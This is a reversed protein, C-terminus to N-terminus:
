NEGSVPHPEAMAVAWYMLAAYVVARLSTGWEALLEEAEGESRHAGFKRILAQHLVIGAAFEGSPHRGGFRAKAEELSRQAEGYSVNETNTTANWHTAVLQWTRARWDRRGALFPKYADQLRDKRVNRKDGDNGREAALQAILPELLLALSRLHLFRRSYSLDRPRNSTEIIGAFEVLWSTLGVSELYSVFRKGSGAELGLEPCHAHLDTALYRLHLQSTMRAAYLEPRLIEAAPRSLGNGLKDVEDCIDAETADHLMGTLRTGDLLYQRIMRQISPGGSEAARSHLETLATLWEYCETLTFDRWPPLTRLRHRVFDKVVEWRAAIDGTIQCVSTVTQPSEVAMQAWSVHDRYLTVAAFWGSALLESVVQRPRPNGVTWGSIWDRPDASLEWADRPTAARPDLIARFSYAEIAAWLELAQWERYYSFARPHHVPRGHNEAVRVKWESWNVGTLEGPKVFRALPESPAELVSPLLPDSGWFPSSCAAALADDIAEFLALDDKSVLPAGLEDARGHHRWVYDEPMVVRVFPKVVEAEDFRELYDGTRMTGRLWEHEFPSVMEALQGVNLVRM